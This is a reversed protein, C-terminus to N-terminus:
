PRCAELLSVYVESMTPFSPVAHWLQHVTMRGVIAVTSAHLLDAVDRGVFTAGLLRGTEAEVVWQAWGEYDEAHLFTGPGAMKVAAVNVKLGSQRAQEVTTGVSAVQPNTFCVQPVIDDSAKSSLPDYPNSDPDRYTGKAKAVISDGAIKGQYKAMHTLPSIGNADGVAYLWEGAGKACMSFDVKISAGNGPLGVTDLGIDTTRAKRGTAIVVESGLVEKGDILSVKVGEPSRQVAKIHASVIVDVGMRVLSETVRRSAEPEFKPLIRDGSMLITVKSGLEHYATALEAGVPGAGIVILHEPVETSSVAERPTWPQAEKLGPIDPMVPDSGVCVVVAHRAEIEVKEDSGWTQVSVRKVGAIKGFGRVVDVAHDQMLKVNADDHWGKTFKDRRAWVGEVHVDQKGHNLKSNFIERVGGVAKGAGVVEGPRLMAKSPVCAWYPCEGGVLESEVIVASLGGRTAQMATTEGASGGGIIVVDYVKSALNSVPHNQPHLNISPRTRSM